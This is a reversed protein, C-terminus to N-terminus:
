LRVVTIQQQQKQQYSKKEKLYLKKDFKNGYLVRHEDWWTGEEMGMVWRGREGVGDIRLKNGTRLLRKRNRQIILQNIDREELKSYARHLGNRSM